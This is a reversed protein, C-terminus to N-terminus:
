DLRVGDIENNIKEPTTPTSDNLELGKEDFMRSLRVVESELM